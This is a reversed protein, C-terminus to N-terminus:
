LTIKPNFQQMLHHTEILHVREKWTWFLVINKIIGQLWTQTEMGFNMDKEKIDKEKGGGKKM